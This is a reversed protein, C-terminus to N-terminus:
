LMAKLSKIKPCEIGHISLGEGIDGKMEIHAGRKNGFKAIASTPIFHLTFAFEDDTPMVLIVNVHEFDNPAIVTASSGKVTGFTAYIRVNLGGIVVYVNVSDRMPDKDDPTAVTVGQALLMGSLLNVAANQTAGVVKHATEPSSGLMLWAPDVKLIEAIMKNKDARPRGEGALWRRVGENSVSAGYRKQLQESIWALRGRNLPPCLDSDDCAQILRKAYDPSIVPRKSM